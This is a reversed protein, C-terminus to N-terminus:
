GRLAPQFGKMRMWHTVQGPVEALVARALAEKSWGGASVFRVMEVFQVIDRCARQGCHELRGKDGDLVEMASFDEEGVGVIIVSMPLSSAKILAQKTDNFDTIIGDTLILLVFYNSPANQHAAAFNAVHNIVPSFNTPGYLQVINLSNYYAAIVGEVGACFPLGPDLTLFFDHSVTLSPPVRAGFGLAPFMRDSDYDQVIDGVARIATVYQNPRGTPDRYHLSQPTDPHGNSGTFDVAVTFNVQLGAQLYDLFSPRTEVTVSKLMVMGSNKYKSGKKKRKKENIVDYMNDAGPGMLLRQLTTEFIGISDHSGGSDEDFVELRLVRGYDGNCLARVEKEFPRWTPSLNNDVVETRHVLTFQGTENARSIELFPDSKGFTDKNELKRAEFTLTVIDKSTSLEEALLHIKGGKGLDRTFGGAQGSVVEGLSCELSGLSDHDSLRRERSSDIDYIAFKLLQREEFRYDIVFKTQWRPNLTDILKETRGLETWKGPHGERPVLLVCTPDSKSALDRDRLGSCSVALEVKQSPSGVTGPQFTGPQQM